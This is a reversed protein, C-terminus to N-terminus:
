RSRWTELLAEMEENEYKWRRTEQLYINNYMMHIKKEVFLFLLHRFIESVQKRLLALRDNVLPRQTM